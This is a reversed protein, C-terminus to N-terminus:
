DWNMYNCKSTGNKDPCIDDFDKMDLSPRDNDMPICFRVIIKRFRLQLHRFSVFWIAHLRDKLGKERSKQRIFEQM